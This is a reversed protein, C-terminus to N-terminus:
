IIFSAMPGLVFYHIDINRNFLLDNFCLFLSPEKSSELADSGDRKNAFTLLSNDYIVLQWFYRCKM